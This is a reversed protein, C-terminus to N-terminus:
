NKLIKANEKRRKEPLERCFMFPAKLRETRAEALQRIAVGLKSNIGLEGLSGKRKRKYFDKGTRALFQYLKLM